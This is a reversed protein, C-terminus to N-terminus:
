RFVYAKNRVSVDPPTRRTEFWDYGQKLETWFDHWRHGSEAALREETMRFPFIHVRFYPQGQQLALRCLTYIQEIYPDTMAFCGISVRNGHVMIFSGTRGHARDYSNPYGINFALHFRSDPKMRSSGVHYFGEPAQMDGEALKPGLTGSMAAIPWTKFHRFKGSAPHLVWLELERSEKFIRIFVPSGATMGAQSLERTLRPTMRNLVDKERLDARASDAKSLTSTHDPKPMSPEARVGSWYVSGLALALCLSTAIANKVSPSHATRIKAFKSNPTEVVSGVRQGPRQFCFIAFRGMFLHTRYSDDTTAAQILHLTKFLGRLLPNFGGETLWRIGQDPTHDRTPLDPKQRAVAAPVAQQGM